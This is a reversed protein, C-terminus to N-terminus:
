IDPFNMVFGHYLSRKLDKFIMWIFLSERNTRFIEWLAIPPIYTNSSSVFRRLYRRGLKRCIETRGICFYYPPTPIVGTHSPGEGHNHFKLQWDERLNSPQNDARTLMRTAASGGAAWRTLVRVIDQHRGTGLIWSRRRYLDRDLIHRVTAGWQPAVVSEAQFM